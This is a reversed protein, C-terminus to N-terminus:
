TEGFEKGEKEEDTLEHEKSKKASSSVSYSTSGDYVQLDRIEKGSHTWLFLSAFFPLAKIDLDQKLLLISDVDRLCRSLVRLNKKYAVFPYLIEQKYKDFQKRNRESTFALLFSDYVNGIMPEFTYKRWILKE